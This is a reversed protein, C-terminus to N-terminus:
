ANPLGYWRWLLCQLAPRVHLHTSDYYFRRVVPALVEPDSVLTLRDAVWLREYPDKTPDTLVAMLIEESTPSKDQWIMGILDLRRIPDTEQALHAYLARMGPEGANFAHGAVWRFPPLGSVREPLDQAHGLLFEAAAQLPVRGMVKLIEVKALPTTSAEYEHKLVEFAKTPLEDDADWHGTLSAIASERESTGKSLNLVVRAVAEPDKRALLGGLAVERVSPESDSLAENLWVLSEQTHAGDALIAAARQRLAPRSDSTLVPVVLLELGNKQAATLALLVRQDIDSNLRKTLEGEAEPDGLRAAPALMAARTEQPTEEEMAKRAFRQATALDNIEPLLPMIHFWIGMYEGSDLWALCDRVYADPDCHVMARLYDLVVPLNGVMPLWGKIGEYDQPEGHAALVDLAALRVDERPHQFGSRGLELGAPTTMLACVSLLNQLVPSGFPESYLKEFLRTLAPIAAAGRDALAAKYRHLVDLQGDALKGVMVDMLDTTDGDFPRGIQCDVLLTQIRADELYRQETTQPAPGQERKGRQWGWAVLGVLAAAVVLPIVRSAGRRGPHATHPLTRIPHALDSM